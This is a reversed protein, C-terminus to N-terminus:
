VSDTWKLLVLLSVMSSLIWRRISLYAFFGANFWTGCFFAVALLLFGRVRFKVDFVGRIHPVEKVRWLTISVAPVSLSEPIHESFLLV